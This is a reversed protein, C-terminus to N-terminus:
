SYMGTDYLRNYITESDISMAMAQCVHPLPNNIDESKVCVFVAFQCRLADTSTRVFGFRTITPARKRAFCFAVVIRDAGDTVIYNLPPQEIWAASTLDRISSNARNDYKDNSM